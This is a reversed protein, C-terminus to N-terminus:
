LTSYLNIARAVLPLLVSSEVPKYIFDFAGARVANIVEKREAQATVMIVPIHKHAPSSKLRNLLSVSDENLIIRDLVIVTFHKDGRSLVDWAEAISSATTVKYHADMLYNQIAKLCIKDDDIVLINQSLM